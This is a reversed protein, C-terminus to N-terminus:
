TQALIFLCTVSTIPFLLITCWVVALFTPSLPVRPPWSLLEGPERPEGPGRTGGPDRRGPPPTIYLDATEPHNADNEPQHNAAAPASIYLINKVRFCNRQVRIRKHLWFCIKQGQSLFSNCSNRRAIKPSPESSSLCSIHSQVFETASTNQPAYSFELKPKPASVSQTKKEDPSKHPSASFYLFFIVIFCNRQVRTRKYLLFGSKKSQPLFSNRSNRRAIKPSPGSSSLFRIHSQVLETASTNKPAHSFKLKPKPASVSQTKKTQHNSPAAGFLEFFSITRLLNHQM